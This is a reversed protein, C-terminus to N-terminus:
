TRRIWRTAKLHASLDFQDNSDLCVRSARTFQGARARLVDRLSASEDATSCAVRRECGDAFAMFVAAVQEPIMSGDDLKKALYPALKSVPVSSDVAIREDRRGVHCITVVPEVNGQDHNSTSPDTREDGFRVREATGAPFVQNWRAIPPIERPEDTAPDITGSVRSLTKEPGNPGLGGEQIKYTKHRMPLIIPDM